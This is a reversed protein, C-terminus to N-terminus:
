RRIMQALDHTHLNSHLSTQGIIYCMKPDEIAAERMAKHFMEEDPKCLLRTGTYDCYTIGEFYDEIGLLQVVRMGHKIYANTFLWLQVKSKDIDNFLKHLESDPQLLDELPLSDDVATNFELPNIGYNMALGKVILGYESPYLMRVKHAETPDLSLTNMLYGDVLATTTEHVKLELEFTM